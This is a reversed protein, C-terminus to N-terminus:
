NGARAYLLAKHSPMAAGDSTHAYHETDLLLVTVETGNENPLFAMLGSFLIRLVFTSL